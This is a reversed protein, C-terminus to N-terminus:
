VQPFFGGGARKPLNYYNKIQHNSLPSPIVFLSLSGSGHGSPNARNKGPTPRMARHLFRALITKASLHLLVKIFASV